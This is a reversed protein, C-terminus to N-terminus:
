AARSLQDLLTEWQEQKIKVYEGEFRSDNFYNKAWIGRKVYAIIDSFTADSKKNYWATSLVPLAQSKLMEIAFLCVLSFLAM